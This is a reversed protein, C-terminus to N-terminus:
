VLELGEWLRRVIREYPVGEAVSQRRVFDSFAEPTMRLRQMLDKRQEPTLGSREAPVFKRRIPPPPEFDEKALRKVNAVDVPSPRFPLTAIETEIPESFVHEALIELPTLGQLGLTEVYGKWATVRLSRRWTVEPVDEPGKPLLPVPWARLPIADRWDGTIKGLARCLSTFESHAAIQQLEDASFTRAEWAAVTREAPQLHRPVFSWLALGRISGSQPAAGGKQRRPQAPETKGGEYAKAAEEVTEFPGGTSRKGKSRMQFYFRDTRPDYYVGKTTKAQQRKWAIVESSPAENM